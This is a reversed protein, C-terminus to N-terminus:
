LPCRDGGTRFLHGIGLRGSIPSVNNDKYVVRKVHLHEYKYFYVNSFRIKPLLNFWLFFSVLNAHKFGSCFHQVPSVNPWKDHNEPVLVIM